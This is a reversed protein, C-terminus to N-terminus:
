KTDGDVMEQELATVLAKLNAFGRQQGTRPDELRFRWVRPSNPDQNREEWITLLFTHYRPPTHNIAM